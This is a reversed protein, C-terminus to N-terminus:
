SSNKSGNVPQLSTSPYFGAHNVFSLCEAKNEYPGNDFFRVVAFRKCVALLIIVQASGSNLGLEIM